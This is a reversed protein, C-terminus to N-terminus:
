QGCISKLMSEDYNNRFSRWTGPCFKQLQCNQCPAFMPGSDSSVDYMLPSKDGDSFPVKYATM